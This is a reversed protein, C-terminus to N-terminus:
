CGEHEKIAQQIMARYTGEATERFIGVGIMGQSPELLSQLTAAVIKRALERTDLEGIDVYSFTFGDPEIGVGGARANDDDCLRDRILAAVAEIRQEANM